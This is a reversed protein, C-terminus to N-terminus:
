MVNFKRYVVYRLIFLGAVIVSSAVLTPIKLIDIFVWLLFINLVTFLGGSWLYHLFSKECFFGIVPLRKIRDILPENKSEM